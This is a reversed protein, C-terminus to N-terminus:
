RGNQSVKMLDFLEDARLRHQEATELDGQAQETRALGWLACAEDYRLEMRCAIEHALLQQARATDLDGQAYMVRGAALHVVARHIDGTSKAAKDLAQGATDAAEDLKGLRTLADARRALVLPLVSPMSMRRCRELAADAWVLAEEFRGLGEVAQSLNSLADVSLQIEELTDFIAVARGASEEAEEYRALRVQILSLTSLSSGELRPFGLEQARANAEQCLDLGRELEGMSNCAQGLRARCEAESHRDQMELALDVAEELRVVADRLEGLRWRGMALNMLNLRTLSKDGLQRSASVGKELAANALVDYGRISSHFGVERPLRAAHWLLGRDYATDVAALLSDRHQDLWQLATDKHDLDDTGRGSGERRGFTRRGPFLTDCSREAAILYHDLLREVALGDDDAKEDQSVRQVFSRVLDHMRYLGSDTAELLRVDVLEDLDNEATLSDVDLLAAAEDIDLHRGPHFGLTRFVKQQEPPMAQYSLLLAGAVGRGESTLEDLRRDHHRLREVLKQITWHPRNALRAAAIRVALPLGGCLRLLEAAADPERAIRDPDLTSRLLQHSDPEALAGVSHWEVGDLGTLRSRSTVLVLTDSSAPILARVQESASANDLVLLMRRGRMYSQWRAARGAPLILIEDSAIGAAALLDGQAQFASLPKQGATFGHLDIFLSGDPYDQALHHAAHVALATKGGGGMGDLALVTPRTKPGRDAAQHIWQLEATRGSFDPVDFPLTYPAEDTQDPVAPTRPPRRTRPESREPRSLSPDQRLMRDHLDILGSGPDIGLEDALHGRARAFEDLAAAQQGSQYLALMLQHRLTERLPNEDVLARLEGTVETAEGSAIRLEYLQEAASLRQEELVTSAADVVHGGSGALVPGRWLALAERLQAVAQQSEGGNLSERAQRLLKQYRLLDLQEADVVARYGPGDTVIIDRGHPLRSRLKAVAKRVQHEASDPPEENWVATVLRSVPVVRGTELLLMVLVRQQLAGKFSELVNGLHVEM